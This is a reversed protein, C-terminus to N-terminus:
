KVKLSKIGGKIYFVNKIGKSALEKALEKGSDPEEGDGYVVVNLKKKSLIEKIKLPCVPNLYDYEINEAQDLHWKEFEERDRADIIIASEKIEQFDEYSIEKVEGTTDPCPVYIEFPKNAFLPLRHPHFFNIIIAVLSISFLM